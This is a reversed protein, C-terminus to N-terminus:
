HYVFIKRAIYNYVFVTGIAIIRSLEYSMSFLTISLLNVILINLILGIFAISFVRIFESHSTSTKSGKTFVYRRGAEYNVWFGSGYGAIIAVVYDVGLFILLSYILYDVATSVGGVGFFSIFERM